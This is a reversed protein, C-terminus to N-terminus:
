ATPSIARRAASWSTPAGRCRGASARSRRAAGHDAAQGDDHAQFARFGVAAAVPITNGNGIVGNDAVAAIIAVAVSMSGGAQRAGRRDGPLAALRGHLSAGQARISTSRRSTGTSCRGNSGGSGKACAASRWISSCRRASATAACRRPRRVSGRALHRAPRSVDFLHLVLACLGVPEGDWEAIQCFVKPSDASCNACSTPRPRWWRTACGRTTPSITSSNSSSRRM